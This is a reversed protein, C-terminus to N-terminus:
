NEGGIKDFFSTVRKNQLSRIYLEESSDLLARLGRPLGFSLNEKREQSIIINSYKNTLRTNAIASLEEGAARVISEISNVSDWIVLPVNIIQKRLEKFAYGQENFSTRFQRIYKPVDLYICRVEYGNGYAIYMMYQRIIKGAWTTKGTGSAGSIYLNFGGEVFEDINYRIYDIKRFTELDGAALDPKLPIDHKLSEPLNSSELLWFYEDQRFCYNRPCEGNIIENCCEGEIALPCAKTFARRKIDAM